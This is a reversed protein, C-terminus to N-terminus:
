TGLAGLEAMVEEVLGRGIRILGCYARRVVFMWRRELSWVMGCVFVRMVLRRMRGRLREGLGAKRHVGKRIGGEERGRFKRL